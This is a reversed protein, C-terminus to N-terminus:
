LPETKMSLGSLLQEIQEPTQLAKTKGQALMTPGTRTRRYINTTIPGVTCYLNTEKYQLRQRGKFEVIEGGSRGYVPNNRTPIRVTRGVTMGALHWGRSLLNEIVFQKYQENM